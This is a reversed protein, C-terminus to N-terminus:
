YIPLSYYRRFVLRSGLSPNACYASSLPRTNLYSLHQLSINTNIETYAADISIKGSIGLISSADITTQANRFLYEAQIDIQGGDGTIAGALVNAREFVMFLPQHLHINAGSTLAHSSIHSNDLQLLQSATVHIEGGGARQAQTTLASNNQLQVSSSDIQIHGAQGLGFSEASIAAQNLHLNLAQINISGGSVTIPSSFGLSASIGSQNNLSLNQHQNLYIDGGQSRLSLSSILSENDLHSNLAHIFIHGARGTGLGASSILADDMQLQQCDLRIDGGIGTGLNSSLISAGTGLKINDAQIWINGSNATFNPFVGTQIVSRDNINVNKAQIVLPSGAKTTAQTVSGDLLSRNNLNLSDTQISIPANPTSLQSSNLEVFQNNQIYIGQAQIQSNDIQIKEGQMVLAQQIQLQSNDITVQQSNLKLTQTNLHANAVQISANSLFGFATPAAATLQSTQQTQSSFHRGDSFNLREATSLSLTGNIDLQSNEGLVIGNPNFLYLHTPAILHGNIQSTQNGTIRAIINETPQNLQFIATQDTNINFSAFSHFLNAGRQQGYEAAINLENGSLKANDGLSGDFNVDAHALTVFLFILGLIKMAKADRLRAM